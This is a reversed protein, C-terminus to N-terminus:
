AAGAAGIPPVSLPTPAGAAALVVQRMARTVAVYLARRASLTDPYVAASADPVVVDDFELGKVEDVCTVVVGPRFPFRGELALQVTLGYGLVNALQIAKESTRCIVAVSASPDRSTHARLAEVLWAALHLEAAFLAVPFGDGAVGVPARLSRAWGTVDPPCRYSTELVHREADPAGLESMATDWGLFATTPDVQQEADGAVILTGRPALCRGVLALEIPAFEQAEDVVVVDFTRPSASRAARELARRRDLEFLIAYDEADITAADEMPTGDDMSRGDITRKAEAIVHAFEEDATPSFQIRTHSCLAHIVDAPFAGGARADVEGLLARDGFLEHLDDWRALSRSRRRRVESDPCAPPRQALVSLASRLAPHRKFRVIEATANQSERRPVDPFARQAEHAAFRDYGWVEADALGLRELISAALARLGETPVIVVSRLARRATAHLRALRRLSVITKGAGAEGLILVARGPGLDVIRRQATDLHLNEPSAPRPRDARNSELVPPPPDAVPVWEGGGRRSFRAHPTAIEVLVGREFTVLDRELVVGELTRGAVDIAYEEGLEFGFFVEALPATRWDLLAFGASVRTETGLLVDSVRGERTRLRIHAEYPTSPLRGGSEARLRDALRLQEEIFRRDPASLSTMPTSPNPAMPACCVPDRASSCAGRAVVFEPYYRHTSGTRVGDRFSFLVSSM